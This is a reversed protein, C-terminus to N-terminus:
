FIISLIQRSTYSLATLVYVSYVQSRLTDHSRPTTVHVFLNIRATTPDCGATIILPNSYKDGIIAANPM